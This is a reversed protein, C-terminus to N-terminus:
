LKERLIQLHRLIKATLDLLLRLRRWDKLPIYASSSGNRAFIRGSIGYCLWGGANGPPAQKPLTEADCTERLM